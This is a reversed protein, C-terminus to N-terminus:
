SNNGDQTNNNFASLILQEVADKNLPKEISGSIWPKIRNLRAREAAGPPTTLMFFIAPRYGEPASEALREVFTIGDMVPMNIDLLILDPLSAQGSSTMAIELFSLAAEGNASTTVEEALGTDRLVDENVFNTIEDDDVLLVHRLRNMHLTNESGFGLHPGREWKAKSMLLDEM